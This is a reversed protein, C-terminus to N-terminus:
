QWYPKLKVYFAHDGVVFGEGDVLRVVIKRLPTHLVEGPDVPLDKAMFDHTLVLKREGPASSEVVQPSVAGILSLIRGVVEVKAGRVAPADTEAFHATVEAKLPNEAVYPTALTGEGGTLGVTWAIKPRAYPPKTASAARWCATRVKDGYRQMTGTASVRVGNSAASLVLGKAADVVVVVHGTRDVIKGDELQHYVLVDGDAPALADCSTMVHAFDGVYETWWVKQIPAGRPRPTMNISSFRGLPFEMGAEHFFHFVLGVCDFGGDLAKDDGGWKYRTGLTELAAALMVQARSPPMKAVHTKAREDPPALGLTLTAAAIAVLAQFLRHLGLGRM